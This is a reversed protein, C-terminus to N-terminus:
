GGPGVLQLRDSGVRCPVVAVLWSGTGTDACSLRVAHASTCVEPISSRGGM